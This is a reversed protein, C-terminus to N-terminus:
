KSQNLLVFPTMFILYNKYLVLFLSIWAAHTQTTHVCTYSYFLLGALLNLLLLGSHLFYFWISNFMSREERQAEELEINASNEKAQHTENSQPRNVQNACKVCSYWAVIAGCALWSGPVPRGGM